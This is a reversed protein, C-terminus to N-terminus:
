SIATDHNSSAAPKYEASAADSQHTADWIYYLPSDIHEQDAIGSASQRSIQLKRIGFSLMRDDNGANCASPSMAHTATVNIQLVPDTVEYAFRIEKEDPSMPRFLVLGLDNGNVRVSLVPAFKKIGPFIRFRLTVHVVLRSPAGVQLPLDIRAAGSSWVGWEEPSHFGETLFEYSSRQSLDITLSQGALLSVNNRSHGESAFKSHAELDFLAGLERRRDTSLQSSPFLVATASSLRSGDQIDLYAWSELTSRVFNAGLEFSSTTSPVASDRLLVKRWFADKLIAPSIPQPGLIDQENVKAIDRPDGLLFLSSKGTAAAEVGLSSALTIFPLTDPASFLIGYGNGRVSIVTKGHYTRLHQAIRHSDQRLPHELLIVENYNRLAQDLEPSFDSWDSFRGGKILVSDKETQGILVPIDGSLHLGSYPNRRFRAQFRTAERELECNPVELAKLAVALDPSNTYVSFCLDRLFRVPHVRFDLYDVSNRQLHLKLYPPVEIGIVLDFLNFQDLVSHLASSNQNGDYLSAWVDDAREPSELYLSLFEPPTRDRVSPFITDVSVGWEKWRKEANLITKLWLVNGAQVSHLGQQTKVLRLFDGTFAVKKRQTILEM